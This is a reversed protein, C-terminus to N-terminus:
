KNEFWAERLAKCELSWGALVDEAFKITSAIVVRALNIVFNITSTIYVWIRGGWYVVFDRVKDYGFVIKDWLESFFSAVTFWLKVFFDAISEFFGRVKSFLNNFFQKIKRM